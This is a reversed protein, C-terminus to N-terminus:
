NPTLSGGLNNCGLPQIKGRRGTTQAHTFGLGKSPPNTPPFLMANTCKRCRKPPFPSNSLIRSKQALFVPFNACNAQIKLFSVSISRRKPVFQIFTGRKKSLNYSDGMKQTLIHSNECKKHWNVEKKRCVIHNNGKKQVYQTFEGRKPCFTHIKENIHSNVEM